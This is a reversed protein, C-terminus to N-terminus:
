YTDHSFLYSYLEESGQMLVCDAVECGCALTMIGNYVGNEILYIIIIFITSQAAAEAERRADVEAQDEVYGAAPGQM